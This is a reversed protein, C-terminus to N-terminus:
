FNSKKVNELHNKIKKKTKNYKEIVSFFKFVIWNKHKKKKDFYVVYINTYYIHM